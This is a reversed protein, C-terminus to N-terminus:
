PRRFRSSTVLSSFWVTLEADTRTILDLLHSRKHAPKAAPDPGAPTSVLHLRLAGLMLWAAGQQASQELLQRHMSRQQATAGTDPAAHGREAAMSSAPAHAFQLQQADAAGGLVLRLCPLLLPQMLEKLKVHDCATLIEAFAWRTDEERRKM